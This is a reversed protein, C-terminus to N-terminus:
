SGGRRGRRTTSTTWEVGVPLPWSEDLYSKIRMLLEFFLLCIPENSSTAIWLMLEQSPAPSYKVTWPVAQPAAAAAAAAAGAEGARLIKRITASVLQVLVARNIESENAFVHALSKTRHFQLMKTAVLNVITSNELGVITLTCQKSLIQNLENGIAYVILYEVLAHKSVRSPMFDITKVKVLPKVLFDGHIGLPTPAVTTSVASTTTDVVLSNTASASDGKEAMHAELQSPEVRLGFDQAISLLQALTRSSHATLNDKEAEVLMKAFGLKVIGLAFISSSLLTRLVFLTRVVGLLRLHSHIETPIAYIRMSTTSFSLFTPPAIYSATCPDVGDASLQLGHWAVDHAGANSIATIKACDFILADHFELAHSALWADLRKAAEAGPTKCAFLFAAHDVRSATFWDDNVVRYVVHAIGPYENLATDHISTVPKKNKQMQTLRKVFAALKRLLSGEEILSKREGDILPLCLLNFIRDFEELLRDRIQIRAERNSLAADLIASALANALLPILEYEVLAHRALRKSSFCPNETQRLARCMSHIFNRTLQAIPQELLLQIRAKDFFRFKQLLARLDVCKHDDDSEDNQLNLEVQIKKLQDIENRYSIALELLEHFQRSAKCLDDISSMVPRPQRGHRM